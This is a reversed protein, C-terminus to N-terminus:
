FLRGLRELVTAGHITADLLSVVFLFVAAIQFSRDKWWKERRGRVLMYAGFLALFPYIQFRYRSQVVTPLLLIPATAAIAVLYWLHTQRERIAAVIGAYGFPFLVMGSVLSAAVFAAQPLGTQYFWFGMPRILSFFRIFRLVTLELFVLPHAAIFGFFQRKAEASLGAYGNADGFATVANFGGSIQGGNSLITNGIWLNYDGILTTLIFQDYVAYNRVVWPALVAACALFFAGLSLSRRARVYMFCIIPVFLAVPPRTLIAIGTGVGLLAALGARDPRELSIVFAYVAVVVCFLYLTETMLMASIEILDPHFGFLAAALLGVARGRDPFVRLAIRFLLYGTLGHLLAQVIWVAEYRHGFVAYIGALFFEYGPGARVIATDRDFQLSADERFGNGSLLNVAIRDYAQADVVPPIRHWFSYALSLLVSVAVVALISNGGLNRFSPWKM